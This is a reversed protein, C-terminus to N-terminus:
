QTSERDATSDVVAIPTHRKHGGIAALVMM